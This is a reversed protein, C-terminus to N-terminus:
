SNTIQPAVAAVPAGDRAGVGWADSRAASRTEARMWLWMVVGLITLGFLEGVSWLIGAGMRQDQLLGPGWTRHLQRYFDGAVPTRSSLLAIGVIAHFPLAVLVFLMRAGYPLPRGVHDLGIAVALFLYGVVVFHMHVLVHFWPNRLSLEYLGTFYLAFLTTGFLVWVVLPHTLVAIPRSRLVRLIRTRGPRDTAQIALTLPAGLVLLLPALLGLLLHQAIHMSFLTTDYAALGSQTAYVIVAMGAAFSISRSRPWRRGRAEVRGVAVLYATGLCIFPLLELADFQWDTLFTTWTPPPLTLVVPV